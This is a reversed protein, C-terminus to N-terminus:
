KVTQRVAEYQAFCQKLAVRLEDARAAERALFEADPRYLEAGTCATVTSGAGTSNPVTGTQTTPRSQRDRLSNVLATNRAAIDRIERDKEQRLRDAGMQLQQQKEVSEEMAKAYQTYQATKEKDWAQQVEAMGSNRGSYYGGTAAAGIALVAGLILYPNM